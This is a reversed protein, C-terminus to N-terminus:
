LGLERRLDEHEMVRERPSQRAREVAIREEETEPEDDIPANRLSPWDRDKATGLLQLTRRVIDFESPPIQDILHHLEKKETEVSSM